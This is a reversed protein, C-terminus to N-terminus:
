GAGNTHESFYDRTQTINHAIMARLAEASEFVQEARLFRYLEVHVFKGYVDGSFDLLHPEITPEGADLFTPKKGINTVAQYRKGDIIVQSAYVGFPPLVMEQPLKLNITPIQLVSTGVKRGHQVTGSITYPHGLFRTAREMEGQMILQRIYTSSVVIGDVKVDAVCDYGIGAKACETRLGESTGLGRYGFRNNRGTIIYRAGFQGILCTHIFDRWDMKRMEEDFHGFIVEDVGGLAKIEDRRYSEATLLPVHKGSIVTSPHTDFTFVASKGGIEQARAVARAMLARHGLHVGDFYGLAIAAPRVQQM